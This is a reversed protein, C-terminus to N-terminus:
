KERTMFEYQERAIAEGIEDSDISDADLFRQGVCVWWCHATGNITGRMLRVEAKQEVIEENEIHMGIFM